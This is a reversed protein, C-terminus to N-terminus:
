ESVLRLHEKIKNMLIQIFIELLYLNKIGWVVYYLTIIESLAM